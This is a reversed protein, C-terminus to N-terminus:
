NARGRTMMIFADARDGLADHQSIAAPAACCGYMIIIDSVVM